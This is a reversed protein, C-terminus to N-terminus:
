FEGGYIVSAATETVETLSLARIKGGRIALVNNEEFKPIDVDKLSKLTSFRNRFTVTKLNNRDSAEISLGESGKFNLTDSYNATLTKSNIHIKDFSNQEVDVVMKNKPNRKVSFGSYETFNIRDFGSESNVDFLTFGLREFDNTLTGTTSQQYVSCVLDKEEQTTTTSYLAANHVKDVEKTSVKGDSVIEETLSLSQTAEDLTNNNYILAAKIKDLSM